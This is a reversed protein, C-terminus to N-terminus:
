VQMILIYRTVMGGTLVAMVRDKETVRNSAQYVNSFFKNGFKEISILKKSKGELFALGSYNDKQSNIGSSFGKFNQFDAKIRGPILREPLVKDSFPELVKSMLHIGLNGDDCHM